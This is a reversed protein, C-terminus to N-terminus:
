KAADTMRVTFLTEDVLTARLVLNTPDGDLDIRSLARKLRAVKPKALVHFVGEPEEKYLADFADFFGSFDGSPLAAFKAFGPLDRLPRRVVEDENSYVYESQTTTFVTEFPELTRWTFDVGPRIAYVGKTVFTEGSALRKEQVFAGATENTPALRARLPEPVETLFAAILVGACGIFM